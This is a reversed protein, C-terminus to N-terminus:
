FLFLFLFNRRSGIGMRAAHDMILHRRKTGKDWGESALARSHTNDSVVSAGPLLSRNGELKRARSDFSLSMLFIFLLFFHPTIQHANAVSGFVCAWARARSPLSRQVLDHAFLLSATSNGRSGFSAAKVM